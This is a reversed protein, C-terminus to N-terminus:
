ITEFDRRFDARVGVRQRLGANRAEAEDGLRQVIEVVVVRVGVREVFDIWFLERLVGGRDRCQRPDQGLLATMRLRRLRQLAVRPVGCPPRLVGAHKGQEFAAVREPNVPLPDKSRGVSSRSRRRLEPPERHCTEACSLTEVMRFSMRPPVDVNTAIAYMMMTLGAMRFAAPNGTPALVTAVITTAATPEITIPM